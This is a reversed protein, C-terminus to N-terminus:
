NSLIDATKILREGAILPNLKRSKIKPLHDTPIDAPTITAFEELLASLEPDPTARLRELLTKEGYIYLDDYSIHNHTIALRAIRALLGMMYVDEPDSCAADLAKAALLAKKGASVTKFGIEPLHDENQYITASAVLERITDRSLDQTWGIGSLILGDLRDACLRPRNNDVISYQKFDVVDTLRIHDSALYDMLQRDSRILRETYTETSEQNEYDQNMFDIAHSFCPTAIDHFLAALIVAPESTFRAALLATSLSHDFRSIYEPFHYIAPSAYDMGCFYGVDKPRRMSPCQLYKELFAPTGDPALESLYFQYDTM